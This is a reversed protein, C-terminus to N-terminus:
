TLQAEEARQGFLQMEPVRGLSELYSRRPDALTEARELVLEAARENVAGTAADFQRRESLPKQAVDTRGELM